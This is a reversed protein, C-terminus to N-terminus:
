ENGQHVELILKEETGDRHAGPLNHRAQQQDSRVGDSHQERGPIEGFGQMWRCRVWELGPESEKADHKEPFHNIDIDLFQGKAFYFFYFLLYEYNLCGIHTERKKRPNNLLIINDTKVNTELSKAFIFRLNQKKKVDGFM